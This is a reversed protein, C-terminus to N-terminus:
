PFVKIPRPYRGVIRAGPLRPLIGRLFPDEENLFGPLSILTCDGAEAQWLAAPLSAYPGPSVILTEDDGSAQPEAHGFVLLQPQGDSSLVPLTGIVRPGAPPAQCFGSAWDSATAVVRLSPDDELTRALGDRYIPHDDAVLVRVVGAAEAM